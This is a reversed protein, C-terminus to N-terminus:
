PLVSEPPRGSQVALRLAAAIADARAVLERTEAERRATTADLLDIMKVVGTKFREDTIREAERAAALARAATAQRRRATAVEEFAQRVELKIGEEFRAVDEAGARAEWRAAAAAARDAGGAFLNVSAVAMVTTSNGHSGFPTDDVWDERGLVALRPLFASRRVEEELEGARLQQRAALLDKRSNASALWAPLGEDLAHPRPLTDLEWETGQDAGLRFALNAEAVRTNGEAQELLDEIHALEVEARLVESRVIMGQAAYTRAMEVHARMTERARQLLEVYERAQAVKVYAEAAALAAQEGAWTASDNGAGASLEAQTIRASLEGGTYLPLSLEVRSIATNLAAPRNPDTATFDAFSFREQNLKLAFVEAPSDTRTWIEQVSLAPLRSGRAQALREGAAQARDGAAQVERAHQRARAIASALTLHEGAFAPAAVVVALVCVAIQGCRM